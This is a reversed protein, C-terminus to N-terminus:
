LKEETLIMNQIIEFLLEPPSSMISKVTVEIANKSDSSSDHDAMLCLNAQNEDEENDSSSDSDSWAAVMAKKNRDRRSSNEKKKKPCDKVFHGTEGCEFCTPKSKNMKSSSKGKYRSGRHFNNKRNFEKKMKLIRALGKSILAFPDEDDEDDETESDNSEEYREEKKAKLALNRSTSPLEGDEENLSMEHTILKGLLDDLTLLTLDQAEEIATVKPGWKSKPLCRLIKRVKEENTFTRGLSNLNNIIETFRTFMEKVSEEKTMKFLEYQRLFISIKSEKVQSTGEYTVVLKDWIEKASTCSSVRNFENADLGCYLLNIARYNKAVIELDTQNFESELKPVRAGGEVTKMPVSPGRQTIDWLEMDQDIIFM